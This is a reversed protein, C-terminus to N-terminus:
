NIINEFIGESLYYRRLCDVDLMRGLVVILKAVMDGASVGGGKFEKCPLHNTCRGITGFCCFVASVLGIKTRRWGGGGRDLKAKM